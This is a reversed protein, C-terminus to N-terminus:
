SALDHVSPIDVEPPHSPPQTVTLDPQALRSLQHSLISLHRTNPLSAFFDVQSEFFDLLETESKRRCAVCFDLSNLPADLSLLAPRSTNGAPTAHYTM